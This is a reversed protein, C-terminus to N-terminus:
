WSVGAQDFYRHLGKRAALNTAEAWLDVPNLDDTLVPAYSGDPVFRNDWARNQHFAPTKGYNLDRIGPEIRQLLKLENQSAFLVINGIVEPAHSIPLALLHQFCTKLTAALSRVLIHNWALAEVNIALIGDPKLRAAALGFSEKTVLHFPISSSGFADLVILDYLENKENLFKRGDMVFVRAESSDLGFYEYAVGVVVPDIEVADVSWGALAYNKAVSGGGLGILLLCGEDEFFLKAIDLVHVYPFVSRYTEREVISHIGGDIVFHRGNETEVVRLEAYPSHRVAILGKELDARQGPAKAFALAAAGIALVSIFTMLKSRLHLLFGVLTLILLLAGIALTLRMVGFNPIFVFGTLLASIVSGITSLAYIDGATRGVVNLSAARVRIAYPSVMGLLTLPPVFLIFAAALVAFRLGLPESVALVPHTLWPILLTWAGAGAVIYYLRSFKAEKDAWRGGVAYGVSLAILTVTILASWLFLSVGYFPGLIRTGLIEIALVAAGCIFVIVYLFLHPM